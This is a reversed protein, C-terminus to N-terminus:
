KFLHFDVDSQEIGDVWMRLGHHRVNLEIKHGDPTEVVIDIGREASISVEQRDMDTTAVLTIESKEKTMDFEKLFTIVM